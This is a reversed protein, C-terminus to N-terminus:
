EDAAEALRNRLDELETRFWAKLQRLEEKLRVIEDHLADINHQLDAKANRLDALSAPDTTWM